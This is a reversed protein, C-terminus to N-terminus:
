PIDVIMLLQKLSTEDDRGSGTVVTQCWFVKSLLGEGEFLSIIKDGFGM